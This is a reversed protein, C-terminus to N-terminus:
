TLEKDQLLDKCWQSDLFKEVEQKRQQFVLNGPNRKLMREAERLDKAAQAIIADALNQYAKNIGHDESTGNELILKAKM